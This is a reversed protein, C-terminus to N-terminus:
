ALKKQASYGRWVPALVNTITWGLWHLKYYMLLDPVSDAKGDMYAQVAMGCAIAVATIYFSHWAAYLAVLMRDQWSNPVAVSIVKM